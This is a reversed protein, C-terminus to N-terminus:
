ERKETEREPGLSPASPLSSVASISRDFPPRGGRFNSGLMGTGSGVGAGAEGGGGGADAAVSQPSVDSPGAAGDSHLPSVRGDLGEIIAAAGATSAIDPSVSRPSAPSLPSAARAHDPDPSPATGDAAASASPLMPEQTAATSPDATAAPASDQHGVSKQETAEIPPNDSAPGKGKNAATAAGDTSLEHRAAESGVVEVPFAHSGEVERPSAPVAAPAEYIPKDTGLEQKEFTRATGPSSPQRPSSTHSDSEPPTTTTAPGKEASIEQHRRNRRRRLFFFAALAILALVGLTLGVALGITQGNNSSSSSPAAAPSAAAPSTPSSSPIAVLRQANNEPFAAQSINFVNAEWNVSVYAEQLFTRGITYQSENAARRLPFYPTPALNSIRPWSARLDFAAYPLVIDVTPGGGSAQAGLTFTVNPNAATLADHQSDNAPAYSNTTSNWTLGFTREFVRCAELPLWIESASSDIPALIGSPLLSTSTGNLDTTISQVGM